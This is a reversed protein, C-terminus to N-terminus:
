ICKRGRIANQRPAAKSVTWICALPMKPDGTHVWNCTLRDTKQVLYLKNMM